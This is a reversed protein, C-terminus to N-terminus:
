RLTMEHVTQAGLALKVTPTLVEQRLSDFLTLPYPDGYTVGIRTAYEKSFLPFPISGPAYQTRAADKLSELAKLNNLKRGKQLKLREVVFKAARTADMFDLLVNENIHRGFQIMERIIRLGGRAFTSVSANTVDDPITVPLNGRRLKDLAKIFLAYQAQGLIPLIERKRQVLLAFYLDFGFLNLDAGVPIANIFAVPWKAFTRIPLGEFIADELRALWTPIGYFSEYLYHKSSNVTCGVGCGVRYTRGKKDTRWAGYTGHEFHDMRQHWRLTELLGDKIHQKGHFAHLTM